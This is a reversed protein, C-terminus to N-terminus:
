GGQGKDQGCDHDRSPEIGKQPRSPPDVQTQDGQKVKIRGRNLKEVGKSRDDSGMDKIVGRDDNSHHAIGPRALVDPQLM